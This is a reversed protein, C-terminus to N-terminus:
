SWANLHIVFPAVNIGPGGQSKVLPHSVLRRFLNQGECPTPLLLTIMAVAAPEM